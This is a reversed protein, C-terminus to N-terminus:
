LYGLTLGEKEAKGTCPSSHIMEQSSSTPFGKATLLGVQMSVRSCHSMTETTNAVGM